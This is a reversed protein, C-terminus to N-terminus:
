EQEEKNEEAKAMKLGNKSMSRKRRKGNKDITRYKQGLTDEM